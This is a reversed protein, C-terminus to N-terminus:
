VITKTPRLRAASRIHFLMAVRATEADGARLAEFIAMHERYGKELSEPANQVALYSLRKFSWCKRIAQGLAYNGARDAITLHLAFDFREAARPWQPDVGPRAEEALATLRAFDDATMRTAALAAAQPELLERMEHIEVLWNEAGERVVARKNVELVVIGDAALRQLAQVVPTRSLGLRRALQTSKLETGGRLEGRVIELLIDQYVADVRSSEVKEDAEALPDAPLSDTEVGPNSADPNKQNVPNM